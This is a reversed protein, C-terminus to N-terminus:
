IYQTQVENNERDQIEGIVYAKDGIAALRDMVEQASADPVVVVM